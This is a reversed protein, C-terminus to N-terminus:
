LSLRRGDHAALRPSGKCRGCAPAGEAGLRRPGTCRRSLDRGKGRMSREASCSANAARTDIGEKACSVLRRVMRVSYIAEVPGAACLCVVKRHEVEVLGALVPEETQSRQLGRAVSASISVTNQVKVAEVGLGDTARLEAEPDDVVSRREVEGRAFLDIGEFCAQVGSDLYELKRAASVRQLVLVCIRM